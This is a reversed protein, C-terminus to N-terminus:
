RPDDHKGGDILKFPLVKGTPKHDALAVDDCWPPCDCGTDDAGFPWTGLGDQAVIKWGAIHLAMTFTDTMPGIMSRAWDNLEEESLQALQDALKSKHKRKSM